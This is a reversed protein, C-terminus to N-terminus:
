LSLIQGDLVHGSVYQDILVAREVEVLNGELSNSRLPLYSWIKGYNSASLLPSQLHGWMARRSVKHVGPLGLLCLKMSCQNPNPAVVQSFTDVVATILTLHHLISLDCEWFAGGAVNGGAWGLKPTMKQPDPRMQFLLSGFAPLWLFPYSLSWTHIWATSSRLSNQQM